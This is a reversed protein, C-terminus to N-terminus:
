VPAAIVGAAAGSIVLGGASAQLNQHHAWLSVALVCGLLIPWALLGTYKTGMAFGCFLGFLAYHRSQTADFGVRAAALVFAAYLGDIMGRGCAAYVAPTTATLAAVWATSHLDLGMRLALSAAMLLIAAVSVVAFLEPARQGGLAM